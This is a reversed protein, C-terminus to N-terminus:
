FRWWWKQLKAGAGSQPWKKIEHHGNKRVVPAVELKLFHM